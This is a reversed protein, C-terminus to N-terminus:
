KNNINVNSSLQCCIAISVVTQISLSVVLVVLLVNVLAQFRKDTPLAVSFLKAMFYIYNFSPLRLFLKNHMGQWFTKLQSRSVPYFILRKHAALTTITEWFVVNTNAM